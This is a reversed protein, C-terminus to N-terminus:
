LFWEWIVNAKALIKKFFFSSVNNNKMKYLSQREAPKSSKSFQLPSFFHDSPYSNEPVNNLFSKYNFHIEKNLNMSNNNENNEISSRKLINNDNKNINNNNLNNNKDIHIKKSLNLQFLQESNYFKAENIYKSIEEDVDFNYKKRQADLVILIKKGNKIIQEFNYDLNETSDFNEQCTYIDRLHVALYPLYPEDGKRMTKILKRYNSFNHFPNLIQEMEEMMNRTSVSIKEWETRLTQITSNNLGALVAGMGGFNKIM